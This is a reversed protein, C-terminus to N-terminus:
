PKPNVAQGFVIIIIAVLEVYITELGASCDNCTLIQVVTQKSKYLSDYSHNGKGVSKGHSLRHVSIAISWQHLVSLGRGRKLDTRKLRHTKLHFCM